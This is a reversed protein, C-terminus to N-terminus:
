RNYRYIEDYLVNYDLTQNSGLLWIKNKHIIPLTEGYGNRSIASLSYPINEGEDWTDSVSNYIQHNYTHNWVDGAGFAHIKGKYVISNSCAPNLSTLSSYSWDDEIVWHNTGDIIHFKNNYVHVRSSINQNGNLGSCINTAVQQIIDTTGDYEYVNWWYTPYWSGQSNLQFLYLKGDKVCAQHVKPFGNGQSDQSKFTATTGDFVWCNAQGGYGYDALKGAFIYLKGQYECIVSDGPTLTWANGWYGPVNLTVSDAWSTGNFVKMQMTTSVDRAVSQSNGAIIYIKGGYSAGSKVLYAGTTNPYTTMKTWPESPVEIEKIKTGMLFASAIQM